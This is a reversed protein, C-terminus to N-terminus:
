QDGGWHGGGRGRGLREGAAPPLATSIEGRFRGTYPAIESLRVGRIEDGSSTAVRVPVTNENEGGSQDRDRVMIYFPNGPRVRSTNGASIQEGLNMQSEVDMAQQESEDLIRGASVALRADDVIRLRKPEVSTMGRESLFAPDIEYSVVDMGNVELLQNGPSAAALVTDMSGRFLKPDRTSPFLNLREEDAGESTRIVM